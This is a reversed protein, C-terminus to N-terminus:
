SDSCIVKGDRTECDSPRWLGGDDAYIRHRRVRVARTRSDRDLFFRGRFREIEPEFLPSGCAYIITMSGDSEESEIIKFEVFDLEVHKNALSLNQSNKLVRTVRVDCTRSEANCVARGEIVAASVDFYWDDLPEGCAIAASPMMVAIPLIFRLM